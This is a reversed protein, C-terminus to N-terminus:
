GGTRKRVDKIIKDTEREKAEAFYDKFDIVEENEDLSKRIKRRKETKPSVPPHDSRKYATDSKSDSLQKDDTWKAWGPVPNAKPPFSSFDVGYPFFYDYLLYIAVLVLVMSAIYLLM